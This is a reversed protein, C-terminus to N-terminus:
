KHDGLTRTILVVSIDAVFWNLAILINLGYKNYISKRGGSGLPRLTESNTVNREFLIKTHKEQGYFFSIRCLDSIQKEDILCTEFGYLLKHLPRTTFLLRYYKLPIYRQFGM